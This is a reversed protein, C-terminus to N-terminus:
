PRLLPPPPRCLWLKGEEAGDEVPVVAPVSSWTARWQLAHSVNMSRLLRYSFPFDLLYLTRTMAIGVCSGVIPVVIVRM